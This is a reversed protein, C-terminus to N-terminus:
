KQGVNWQHRVLLAESCQVEEWLCRVYNATVHWVSVSISELLGSVCSETSRRGINRRCIPFQCLRERVSRVSPVNVWGLETQPRELVAHQSRAALERMRMTSLTSGNRIVFLDLTRANNRWLPISMWDKELRISINTQKNYIHHLINNERWQQM